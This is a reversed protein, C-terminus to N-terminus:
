VVFELYEYLVALIVWCACIGLVCWGSAVFGSVWVVRVGGFGFSACSVALCWCVVVLVHTWGFGSFLCAFSVSNM